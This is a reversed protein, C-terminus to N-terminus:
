KVIVKRLNEMFYKYNAFPVNSLVFHDPGPIFRGKKILLAAKEVERDMEDKGQAM